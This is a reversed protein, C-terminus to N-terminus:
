DSEPWRSPAPPLSKLYAVVAALEEPRFHSKFGPMRTSGNAVFARLAEDRGGLSDRSLVPGYQASGAHPPAHCVRCSQNFLRMGLLTDDSVPAPASGQSRAQLPALLLLFLIAVRKM